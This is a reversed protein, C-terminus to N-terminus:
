IYFENNDLCTIKVANENDNIDIILDSFWHMASISFDVTSFLYAIRDSFLYVTDKKIIKSFIPEFVKIFLLIEGLHSISFCYCDICVIYGSAFKEFILYEISLDSSFIYCPQNDKEIKFLHYARDSEFLTKTKVKKLNNYELESIQKVIIM